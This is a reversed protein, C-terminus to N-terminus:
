LCYTVKQQLQTIEGTPNGPNIIVIARPQCHKKAEKISRKLEDLTLTWGEEENLFYGIQQPFTM